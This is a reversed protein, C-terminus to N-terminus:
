DRIAQKITTQKTHPHIPLLARGLCDCLPPAPFHGRAALEFTALAEDHKSAPVRLGPSAVTVLRTCKVIGLDILHASRDEVHTDDAKPPTAARWRMIHHNTSLDKYQHPQRDHFM